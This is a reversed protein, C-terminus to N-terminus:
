RCVMVPTKSRTLVQATESGLIAAASSRGRSGM